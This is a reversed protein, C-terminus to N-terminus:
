RMRYTMTPTPPEPEINLSQSLVDVNEFPIMNVSGDDAVNLIFGGCGDTTSGTASEIFSLYEKLEDYNLGLDFQGGIIASCFKDLMYYRDIENHITSYPVFGLTNELGFGLFHSKNSLILVKENVSSNLSENLNKKAEKELETGIKEKDRKFEFIFSKGSWNVFLDNLKQEDPTQQVLQVSKDSLGKNTQAAQFGLAFIFNGIYVNEYPQKM